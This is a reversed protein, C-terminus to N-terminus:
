RKEELVKQYYERAHYATKPVQGGTREYFKISDDIATFVALDIDKFAMERVKVCSDYTRNPEIYDSIFIIKEYITMNPKGITHNMISDLVDKDTVGYTEKAVVFASFAHLIHENFQNIIDNYNDFNDKIVEINRENTYYKTIDHLLAALELKHLDAGHLKGLKKATDRVGIVHKLRNPKHSYIDTLKTILDGPTM